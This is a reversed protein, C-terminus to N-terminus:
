PFYIQGPKKSAAQEDGALASVRGYQFLLRPEDPTSKLAARCSTEAAQIDVDENAVPAATRHPDLPSAALRDCLTVVGGQAAAAWGGMWTLVVIAALMGLGHREIRRGVLAAFGRM